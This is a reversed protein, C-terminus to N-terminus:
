VARRQVLRRLHAKIKKAGGSGAGNAKFPTTKRRAGVATGMVARCYGVPRGAIGHKGAVRRETKRRRKNTRSKLEPAM